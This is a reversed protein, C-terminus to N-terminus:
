VANKMKYVTVLLEAVAKYLRSPIEDGIEVSKFLERALPPNEIIPIGYKSGIEKIREAVEGAGKAIVKPANMDEKYELAVAIHTPNTVIVDANKVNQMMRSRAIMIMKERQKRKVLPNGEYDKMEDKVEKKTMRLSREYEWRQYFIDLIGIVLLALGVKMILQFIMNGIIVSSDLLSEQSTMLYQNWGAIITIYGIYGIIAIKAISKIFEFVSRLSFMRKIGEIPNLKSLDPIIAKMSFAFRTQLLSPVAAGVIGAVMVLALWGLAISFAETLYGMAQTVSLNGDTGFADTFVFFIHGWQYYLKSFTFYVVASVALLATASNLDKSQAVQGEERAKQRRHPTARETKEPDAFLGLDVYM